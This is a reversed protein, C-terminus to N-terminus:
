WGSLDKKVSMTGFLFTGSTGSGANNSDMDGSFDEPLIYGLLTLGYRIKFIFEGAKNTELSSRGGKLNALSFGKEKFLIALAAMESAPQDSNTDAVAELRPKLDSFGPADKLYILFVSQLLRVDNPKLKNNQLRSSGASIESDELM